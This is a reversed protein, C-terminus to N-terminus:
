DAFPGGIHLRDTQGIEPPEFPEFRGNRFCLWRLSPAELPVDFRFWAEAPRDDDTMETVRVTMGTLRVCQGVSMPRRVSRFLRDLPMALYGNKPRIALTQEDVRRVAVSPFGPALARTARPVPKDGLESMIPLYGAHMPSPPNVIVVDQEEVAVESFPPVMLRDLWRKPGLPAASRLTLLLPALIVHVAVFFWALGVRLRHRQPSKAKEGPDGLTTVLFQSLLGMAGIGAFLLLRDMPFTACVPVVSFLMGAMWFRALRDRRLLPLLAWFVLALFVMASLWLIRLGAPPLLASLDSPPLGWQGLLLIPARQAAASIFQSPDALPDVYLGMDVVGYGLSHRVIRWAVVVAAYPILTASGRLWGARDLFWAYAGLYACTAIGEEKSLLSCALLLPALLAAARQGDRRWRDHAIWSGIGFSVALLANRNAIWGVTTGHADDVAYLLAALGAVWGVAFMRRYVVAVAAVALGFWALSHLHMRAPSHPWLRYDLRHTQVTLTQMFEAKLPKYTWWPYLGLEMVRGTREPDGRFFRFMEGPTGLLERFRPKELLVVRHYYDDLIWGARISPLALVVALVAVVIPFSQHGLLWAASKRLRGRPAIAHAPGPTGDRSGGPQSM